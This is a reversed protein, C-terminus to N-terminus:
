RCLAFYGTSLFLAPDRGSTEEGVSGRKRHRVRSGEEKVLTLSIAVASMTARCNMPPKAGVGPDETGDAVWLRMWRARRKTEGRLVPHRALSTRKSRRRVPADHIIAKPKWPALKPTRSRLSSARLRCRM